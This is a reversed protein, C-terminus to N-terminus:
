KVGRSTNWAAPVIDRLTRYAALGVAPILLKPDVQGNSLTDPLVFVFNVALDRLFKLITREIADHINM